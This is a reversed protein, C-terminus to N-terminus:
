KIFHFQYEKFAVQTKGRANKSIMKVIQPLITESIGLLKIYQATEKLSNFTEQEGCPFTMVVRKPRTM